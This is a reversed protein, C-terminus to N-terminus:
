VGNTEVVLVGDENRVAEIRCVPTEHEDGEYMTKIYLNRDIILEDPNDTAFVLAGCIIWGYTVRKYKWAELLWQRERNLGLLEPETFHRTYEGGYQLDIMWINLPELNFEFDAPVEKIVEVEKVVEVEEPIIIEVRKEIEVVELEKETKKGCATFLAALLILVALKKM